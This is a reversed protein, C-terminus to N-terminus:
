GRKYMFFEEYIKIYKYGLALLANDNAIDSFVIPPLFKLDTVLNINVNTINRVEHRHNKILDNKLNEADVIIQFEEDIKDAFLPDVVGNVFINKRAIEFTFNLPSNFLSGASNFLM